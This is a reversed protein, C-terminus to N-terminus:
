PLVATVEPFQIPEAPRHNQPVITFPQRMKGGPEMGAPFCDRALTSLSFGAASKSPLQNNNYANWRYRSKEEAM